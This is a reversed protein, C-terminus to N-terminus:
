LHVLASVRMPSLNMHEMRNAVSRQWKHVALQERVRMKKLMLQNMEGQERAIQQQLKGREAAFQSVGGKTEMFEMQQLDEKDTSFQSIEDITKDLPAGGDKNSVSDVHELNHNEGDDTTEGDRDAITQQNM